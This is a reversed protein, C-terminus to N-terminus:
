LHLEIARKTLAILGVLRNAMAAKTNDLNVGARKHALENRLRTYVTEMVGAAKLPHQTQPVVADEGVIFADVDAQRDDYLMVLINYLHIFEEVPSESQRASRFLGFNREGSPSAQELETKLHAAPIGVVARAAGTIFLNASVAIAHVGPQSKVPSFQDGSSRAKEIAMGHCFAIRNLAATNVKGALARGDDQTAVSALYVTSRIEDGNPGEIEVKDVGLENPNFDFSPFTMGNGRIKALFNVTGKFMENGKEPEL